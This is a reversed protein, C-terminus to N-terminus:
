QGKRAPHEMGNRRSRSTPIGRAGGSPTSSSRTGGKLNRDGHDTIAVVDCGHSAAASVVTEVSHAGDTFQTHTHFDARLWVGQGYWPVATVFRPSTQMANATAAAAVAAVLLIRM